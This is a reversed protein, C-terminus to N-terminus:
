YELFGAKTKIYKKSAKEISNITIEARIKIIAERENAKSKVKKEKDLQYLELM